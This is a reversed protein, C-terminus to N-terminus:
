KTRQSPANDPSVPEMGDVIKGGELLLEGPTTILYQISAPLRAHSVFNGDPMATVVRNALTDHKEEIQILAILREGHETAAMHELHKACHDCTARWFVWVGDLPLANVDIYENLPAQGLPTDWVDKGVWKELALEIWRGEVPRGDSVVEGPRVESEFFWPLALGVAALAVPVVPMLGAGLRKWPQSVLLGALLASDIALMVRPPVSFKSGFCGCNDVGARIQTTLVFDFVVLLLAQLVWGWRPKTLAVGVIALEIGIALKYTLGIELPVDRVIQPLLAPTGWFLKFVAGTLVWAAITWIWCLSLRPRVAPNVDSPPNM